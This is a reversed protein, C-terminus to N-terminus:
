IEHAHYRVKGIVRFDENQNKEIMSKYLKNDSIIEVGDPIRQLRKVFSSGKYLIAYIGDSGDYGDNDFIIVDKDNLTPIMSDGSVFAATLRGEYKKLAPPVTIYYAVDAYDPVFQGHGASFRMDVVPITPVDTGNDKKSDPFAEFEDWTMGFAKIIAMTDTVSPYHKNHIQNRISQVAMGTKESLWDQKVGKDIMLKKVKDWFEEPEMIAEWANYIIIKIYTNLQCLSVKNYINYISYYYYEILVNIKLM